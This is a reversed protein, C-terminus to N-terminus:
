GRRGSAAGAVAPQSGRKRRVCRWNTQRHCSVGSLLQVMFRDLQSDPLLQTGSAGTPNQTAIVVFPEPIRHTVGDVTVSGEEM